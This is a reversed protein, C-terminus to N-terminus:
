NDVNIVLVQISSYKELSKKSPFTIIEIRAKNKQGRCKMIVYGTKPKASYKLPNQLLPKM